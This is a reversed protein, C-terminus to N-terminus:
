SELEKWALMLYECWPNQAEHMERGTELATELSISLGAGYSFAPFSMWSGHGQISCSETRRIGRTCDVNIMSKFMSKFEPYSGHGM